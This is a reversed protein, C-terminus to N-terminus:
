RPSLGKPSTLGKAPHARFTATWVTPPCSAGNPQQKSLRARRSDEVVVRGDRAETVKLRVPVTTAGIDDPLRVTVGAFPVDADGSAREECRDEVCLRVTAADTGGFDAPRWVVSVGSDMDMLTCPTDQGFVSCGTLAVATGLTFLVRRM